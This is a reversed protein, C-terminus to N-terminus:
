LAHCARLHVDRRQAGERVLSRETIVRRRATCLARLGIMGAPQLATNAPCQAERVMRRERGPGLRMGRGRGEEGTM